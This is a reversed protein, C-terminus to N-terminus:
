WRSRAEVICGYADSIDIRRGDDLIFFGSFLGPILRKSTRTGKIGLESVLM